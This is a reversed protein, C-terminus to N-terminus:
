QQILTSHETSVSKETAGIGFRNHQLHSYPIENQHFAAVVSASNLVLKLKEM